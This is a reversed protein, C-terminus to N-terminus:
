NSRPNRQVTDDTPTGRCAVDSCKLVRLTELLQVEGLGLDRTVDVTEFICIYQAVQIDGACGNSSAEGGPLEVPQLGEFRGSTVEVPGENAAEEFGQDGYVQRGRLDRAHLADWGFAAGKEESM